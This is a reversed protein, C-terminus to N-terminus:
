AAVAAIRARAPHDFNEKLNRLLWETEVTRSGIVVTVRRDCGSSDSAILFHLMSNQNEDVGGLKEWAEAAARDRYIFFERSASWYQWIEPDDMSHTGADDADEFIAGPWLTRVAELIIEAAAVDREVPLIVDIGGIEM